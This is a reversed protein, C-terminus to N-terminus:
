KSKKDTKLKNIDNLVQRFDESWEKTEDFEITFILDLHEKLRNLWLQISEENGEKRYTLQFNIWDYHLLEYQHALKLQAFSYRVWAKSSGYFKEFACLAAVFATAVASWGLNILPQNNNETDIYIVALLPIIAAILTGVLMLVRTAKASNGRRKKNISYWKYQENTKVLLDNTIRALLKLTKQDPILEPTKDDTKIITKKELAKELKNLIDDM